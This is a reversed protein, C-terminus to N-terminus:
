PQAHPTHRTYSLDLREEIFDAWKGWDGEVMSALREIRNTAQSPSLGAAVSQLYLADKDIKIAVSFPADYVVITKDTIPTGGTGCIIIGGGSSM